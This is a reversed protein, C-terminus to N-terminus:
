ALAGRTWLLAAIFAVNLVVIIAAVEASTPKKPKGVQAVVLFTGFLWWAVLFYDFPKM